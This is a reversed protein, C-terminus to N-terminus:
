GGIERRWEAALASLDKGYVTRWRAPDGANRNRPVLPTMAYLRRFKEGGHREILFRMFSGAVLYARRGDLDDTQLMRPTAIRDLAAFDAREALQRAAEHLDEGFNPYAEPGVLKAHGYVALGEALFRNANPALVHIMEHVTAANGRRVTWARFLMHGRQGRWAPVLAMSPGRDERVEIEFPGKFTPGWWGCAKDLATRLDAEFSRVTGGSLSGADFRMAAGSCPTEARVGPVALMLATVFLTSILAGM